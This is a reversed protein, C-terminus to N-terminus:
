PHAGVLVFNDTQGPQRVFEFDYRIPEIMRLLVINGPREYLSSECQIANVEVAGIIRVLGEPTLGHRPQADLKTWDIQTNDRLSGSTKAAVVIKVLAAQLAEIMGTHQSQAFAPALFLLLAFQFTYFARVVTPKM